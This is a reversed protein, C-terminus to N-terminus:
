KLLTYGAGPGNTYCNDDVTKAGPWHTGENGTINFYGMMGQDEHGLLHCHFIMHGTFYDTQFKVTASMGVWLLTDQWDGVQYFADKSASANTLQVIQYPNIHTHIPHLALGNANKWQGNHSAPGTLYFEYVEGVNLYAAPPVNMHMMPSGKATGGHLSPAYNIQFHTPNMLELRGQNAEPVDVGRLDVLYCPRTVRFSPLNAEVAGGPLVQIQLLVQQMVTQGVGAMPGDKAAEQAGENLFKQNAGEHIVAPSTVTDSSALVTSCPKAGRCTCRLALDVRNGSAFYAASIPRPAENLYIGDKALLQLECNEDLIRATTVSWVAAYIMRLRYWRGSQIKMTPKYQGNILVVQSALNVLEKNPYRWLNGKAKQELVPQGWIGLMLNNSSDAANIMTLVLVREEMNQVQPPLSSPPDDMILAGAMGGGAQISTAHHRHPHYWFTGAMHYPPVWSSYNWSQGPDLETWISDSGNWSSVHLGHTHLNTSNSFCFGPNSGTCAPDPNMLKNVLTISLNKGPAFRITPGPVSPPLSPTSYARTYFCPEVGWLGKQGAAAIEWPVCLRITEVHLEVSQNVASVEPPQQLPEGASGITVTRGQWSKAREAERHARSQLL